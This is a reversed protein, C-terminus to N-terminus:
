RVPSSLCGKVLDISRQCDRKDSFSSGCQAILEGDNAVLKWRWHGEDEQYIEFHSSPHLADDLASQLFGM